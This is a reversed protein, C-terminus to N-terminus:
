EKQAPLGRARGPAAVAVRKLKARSRNRIAILRSELSERERQWEARERALAANERQAARLADEQSAQTVRAAGLEGLLTENRQQLSTALVDARRREERAESIQQMMHKQVGEMRQTAKDLESQFAADRTELSARLAAIAKEHETGLERLRTDAIERETNRQAELTEARIRTEEARANAADLQQKLVAIQEGLAGLEVERLRLTEEAAARAELAEAARSEAHATAQELEAVRADYVKEGHEVAVAWIGLMADAVAPPLQSALADSRTKEDKWQKLEDNITTRSGQRIEAYILDVTLEHPRKGAAVLRSATERTRLRTDSIRSM